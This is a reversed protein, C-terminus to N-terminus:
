TMLRLFPQFHSCPHAIGQKSVCLGFDLLKVFDAGLGGFPHLLLFNLGVLCRCLQRDGFIVVLVVLELAPNHVLVSTSDFEGHNDKTAKPKKWERLRAPIQTM